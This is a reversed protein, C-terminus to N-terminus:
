KIYLGTAQVTFTKRDYNIIMIAIPQSMPGMQLNRFYGLTTFVAGTAESLVKTGGGGMKGLKQEFDV